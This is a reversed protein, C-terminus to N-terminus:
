LEEKPRTTAVPMPKGVYDVSIPLWVGEVKTDAKQIVNCGPGSCKRYYGARGMAYTWSHEHDTM